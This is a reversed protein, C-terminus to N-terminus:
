SRLEGRLRTVFDRQRNRTDIDCADSRRTIVSRFTFVSILQSRPACVVPLRHPQMIIEEPLYFRTREAAAAPIFCRTRSIPARARARVTGRGPPTVPRTNRKFCRELFACKLRIVLLGVNILRPTDWSYAYEERHCRYLILSRRFVGCRRLGIRRSANQRRSKGRVPGGRRQGKEFWKGEPFDEERKKGPFTEAVGRREM